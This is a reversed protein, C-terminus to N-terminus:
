RGDAICSRIACASDDDTMELFALHCSTYDFKASATSSTPRSPLRRDWHHPNRDATTPAALDEEGESGGETRERGAPEVVDGATTEVAQTNMSRMATGMGQAVSTGTMEQGFAQRQIGDAIMEAM